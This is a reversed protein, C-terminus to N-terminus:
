RWPSRALSTQASRQSMSSRACPRKWTVRRLFPRGPTCRSRPWSIRASRCSLRSCTHAAGFDKSGDAREPVMPHRDEPAFRERRHPCKLQWIRRDSDEHDAAIRSTGEILPTSAELVLADPHTETRQEALEASGIDELASALAERLTPRLAREGDKLAADCLLPAVSQVAMVRDRLGAFVIEDAKAVEAAPLLEKRALRNELETKDAQEKALRAREANLDLVVADDAEHGAAQLERKVSWRVVDGMFVVYDTGHGSPREAVPM